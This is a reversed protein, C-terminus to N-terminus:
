VIVGEPYKIDKNNSVKVLNLRKRGTFNNFCKEISDIIGKAMDNATFGNECAWKRGELGFDSRQVKPINYWYEIGKQIDPISVRSDYIYPTIPSGVLNVQPWMPYAWIGHNKYRGNSNSPWDETYDNVTLYNGADNKFGMQDQLGGICSALIPTGSMISEMMSLGFGEASSPQCTVDAINYLYNLQHENLKSQSFIVNTDSALAKVVAPLDTGNQDVPDTHLILHCKDKQEDTLGEVFYKYALILDSTRKRQINRSNFLLTFHDDKIQPFYQATFKKYGETDKVPRFVKEDIGHPVYTLDIGEKRPRKQCVHKNINYTQKSIAILGDCSDYFPENWHPYPLDDWINYYLIPVKKRIDYEMSYLWGWFRPDTFHIIADPKEIQMIQQIVNKDGYGNVPYLKLYPNEVGSEKKIDENGSLDIIKGLDPQQLAGALQVWDYKHLSKLVIQRSMTGVGSPLRIDDGLLLIKKKSM